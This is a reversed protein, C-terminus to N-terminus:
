LAATIRASMEACGIRQTGPSWIDATLYGQDLVTEVAAEVAEAASPQNLSYRLLM